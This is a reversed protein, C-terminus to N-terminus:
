ISPQPASQIFTNNVRRGNRMGFTIYVRSGHMFNLFAIQVDATEQASLNIYVVATLGSYFRIKCPQREGHLRLCQQRAELKFHINVNCDNRLFGFCCCILFVCYSVNVFYTQELQKCSSFSTISLIYRKTLHLDCISKIKDFKVTHPAVYDLSTVM